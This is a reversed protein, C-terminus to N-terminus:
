RILKHCGVIHWLSLHGLVSYICKCHVTCLWSSYRRWCWMQASLCPSPDAASSNRKYTAIRWASSLRLQLTGTETRWIFAVTDLDSEFIDYYTASSYLCYEIMRRRITITSVMVMRAIVAAKFSHHLLHRVHDATVHYKPTGLGGESENLLAHYSVLPQM